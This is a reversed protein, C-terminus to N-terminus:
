EEVNAAADAAQKARALAQTMTPRLTHAAEFAKVASRYEGKALHVIGTNYLVAVNDGASSFARRASATDGAVAYALALNNKAAAM